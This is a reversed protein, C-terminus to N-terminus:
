SRTDGEARLKEGEDLLKACKELLLSAEIKVEWWRSTYTQSLGLERKNNIVRNM